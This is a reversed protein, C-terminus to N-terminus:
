LSVGEENSRHVYLLTVGERLDDDLGSYFTMDAKGGFASMHTAVQGSHALLPCELQALNM